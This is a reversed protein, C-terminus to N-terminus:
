SKRYLDNIFWRMEFVVSLAREVFFSFVVITILVKFLREYDLHFLNPDM